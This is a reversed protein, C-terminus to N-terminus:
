SQNTTGDEILYDLCEVFNSMKIYEDDLEFVNCMGICDLCPHNESCKENVDGCYSTLLLVRKKKM